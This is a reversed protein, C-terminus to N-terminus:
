NKNKTVEISSVMGDFQSFFSKKKHNQRKGNRYVRALKDKSKILKSLLYSLKDNYGHKITLVIYYWNKTTLDKEKIFNEFRQIM